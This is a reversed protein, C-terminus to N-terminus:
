GAEWLGCAARKAGGTPKEGIGSHGPGGRGVGSVTKSVENLETAKFMDWVWM